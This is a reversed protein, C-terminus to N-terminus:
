KPMNLGIASFNCKVARFERGTLSGSLSHKNAGSRLTASHASLNSGLQEKQFPGSQCCGPLTFRVTLFTVFFSLCSLPLSRITGRSEM